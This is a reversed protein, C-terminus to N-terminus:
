FGTDSAKPLLTKAPQPSGLPMQAGRYGKGHGKTSRLHIQCHYFHTDAPSIVAGVDDPSPLQTPLPITALLGPLGPCPMMVRKDEEEPLRHYTPDRRKADVVSAKQSVRHFLDCPLFPADELHGSLGLTPLYM